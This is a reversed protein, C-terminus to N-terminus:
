VSCSRCIQDRHQLLENVLGRLVVVVRVGLQDVDAASQDLVLPAHCMQLSPDLVVCRYHFLGVGRSVVPHSLLLRLQVRLEVLVVDEVPLPVIFEASSEVIDKLRLVFELSLSRLLLLLSLQHFRFHDYASFEAELPGCSEPASSHVSGFAVFSDQHNSSNGSLGALSTSFTAHRYRM